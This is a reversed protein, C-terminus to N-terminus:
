TRRIDFHAMISIFLLTYPLKKRTLRVHTGSYWLRVQSSTKRFGTTRHLHSPRPPPPPPPCPAPTACACQTALSTDVPRWGGRACRISPLNSWRLVQLEHLCVSCPSGVRQPDLRLPRGRSRSCDFLCSFSGTQAACHGAISHKM